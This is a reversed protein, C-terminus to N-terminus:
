YSEELYRLDVPPKSTRRKRRRALLEKKFCGCSKTSGRVVNFGTLQKETGCDCRFLWVADGRYLGILRIATLRNFKVGTLDNVSM